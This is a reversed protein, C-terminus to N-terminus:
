GEEGLVMRALPVTVARRGALAARDLAEVAAAAAAFSREMRGLLWAVVEEGVKLQRDAFLKVLLAALVADDPAGIGVAAAANLRSRLDPLAVGWRAPAERGTLLLHAGSEKALNVLHFLAVEDVGRDADEVAVAPAAELLRPPDAVTLGAAEVILGGARAAFLHALHTKGSGAPGFVAMVPGPWHPWRTIWAHAEANCPAVLFDAESLAPRHGLDLPFQPQSM